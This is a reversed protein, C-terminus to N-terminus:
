KQERFELLVSRIDVDSFNNKALNIWRCVLQVNGPIYGKESDIRDISVARLNNFQYLMPMESIACHGSQSGWLAVVEDETITIVRRKPSRSKEQARKDKSKPFYRTLRIKEKFLYKLFIEPSSQVRKRENDRYMRKNKPHTSDWHKKKEKISSKNRKSWERMYKSKCDLCINGVKRNQSFKTKKESRDCKNCIRICKHRPLIGNRLNRGLITAEEGCKCRILWCAKGRKACAYSIVEWTGYHNGIENKRLHSVATM